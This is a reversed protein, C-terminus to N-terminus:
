IILTVSEPKIVEVKVFPILRHSVGMNLLLVLFKALLENHVTIIIEENNM